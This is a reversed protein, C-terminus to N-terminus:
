GPEEPLDAGADMVREMLRRGGPSLTYMKRPAGVGHVETTSRVLGGAKLRELHRSATSGHVGLGRAADAVPLPFPDLYLRLLLERRPRSEFAEAVRRLRASMAPEAAPDREDTTRRGPRIPDWAVTM